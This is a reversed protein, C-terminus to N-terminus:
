CSPGLGPQAQESGRPGPPCEAMTLLPLQREAGSLGSPTWFLARPALSPTSVQHNLCSPPGSGVPGSCATSSFALVHGGSSLWAAPGAGPAREMLSLSLDRSWERIIYRCGCAAKGSVHRRCGEGPLATLTPAEPILFHAWLASCGRM